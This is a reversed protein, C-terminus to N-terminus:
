IQHPFGDLNNGIIYGNEPLHKRINYERRKLSYLDASKNQLENAIKNFTKIDSSVNKTLEETLRKIDVELVGIKHRIKRLRSRRTQTILNIGM